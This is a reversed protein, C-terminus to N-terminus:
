VLKRVDRASHLVRVIEVGGEVPRYLIVYNGHAFSRLGPRLEPRASGMGPMEALRQCTAEIEDVFSIGRLPNDKAIYDGIEALDTEAKTAFICRATM